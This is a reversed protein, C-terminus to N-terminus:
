AYISTTFTNNTTGSSPWNDFPYLAEFNHAHDGDTKMNSFSGGETWRRKYKSSMTILLITCGQVGAQALVAFKLMPKM